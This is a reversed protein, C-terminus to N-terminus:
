VSLDINERLHGDYQSGMRPFHAAARLFIYGALAKYLQPKVHYWDEKGNTLDDSIQLPPIIDIDEGSCANSIKEYFCYARRYREEVGRSTAYPFCLFIIKSNPQKARLWRYIALWNEASETPTLFDTFKFKEYIEGTNNYFQPNIFLPSGRFSSKETPTMLRSAIDMFNDLLIIDIHKNLVDFFREQGKKYSLNGEFGVTPLVQNEIFNTGDSAISPDSSKIFVHNLVALDPISWTEDVFYGRFADSRNHHIRFKEEFGYDTVLHAVPISSLCSGLHGISFKTDSV